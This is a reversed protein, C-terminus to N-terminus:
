LYGVVFRESRKQELSFSDLSMATTDDVKEQCRQRKWKQELMGKQAITMKKRGM